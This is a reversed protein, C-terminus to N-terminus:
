RTAFYSLIGNFIGRTAKAQYNPTAIYREEVPNSLFGLEVLVAPRRNERLVHYNGFKAGMNRMGTESVLGRQISSALIGEKSYGYYFTMVGSSTSAFSNYHLSVFADANYAHSIGVRKSLSLYVDSARTMIVRAGSNRLLSALQNASTLALAKEQYSRGLAGPDMGGHGADIVITKGSIGGGISPQPSSPAPTPAPNTGSPKKVSLYNSSSWGKLGNSSKIQSWSGSKAYVQVATNKKVSGLVSGSTSPKSRVNLSSATVYYTKTSSPPASAKSQKSKSVYSQSVWGTMKKSPVYVKLWSSQSGRVTLSTGNPLSAIVRGKMSPTSRLNLSTANVYGTWSVASIYKASVWGNVRGVSVKLWGNQQSTVNVVQGNRLKGVIAYSTGPKARVNLIDATVKGQYSNAAHPQLGPLVSMLVMAVFVVLCLTKKIMSANM